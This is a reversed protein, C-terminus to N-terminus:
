SGNHCCIGAGGIKCYSTYDEKEYASAFLPRLVKM